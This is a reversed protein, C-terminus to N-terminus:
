VPSFVERTLRAAMIDAGVFRNVADPAVRADPLQTLTFSWPRLQSSHGAGLYALGELFFESQAELAVPRALWQALPLGDEGAQQRWRVSMKERLTDLLIQVNNAGRHRRLYDGFAGWYLEHLVVIGRSAIPFADFRGSEWRSMVNDMHETAAARLDLRDIEDKLLAASERVVGRLQYVADRIDATMHAVKALSHEVETLRTSVQEIASFSRTQSQALLTVTDVLGDLTLHQHQAIRNNRRQTDGSIAGIFRGLIDSEGVRAVRLHDRAVDLSNVMDILVRDKASPVTSLFQSEVTNNM